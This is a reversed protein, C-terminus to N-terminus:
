HLSCDDIQEVSLECEMKFIKTCVESKDKLNYCIQYDSLDVKQIMKEEQLNASYNDKIWGNFTKIKYLECLEIM